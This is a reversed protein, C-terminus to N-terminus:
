LLYLHNIHYLISLVKSIKTYLLSKKKTIKHKFLLLLNNIHYLFYCHKSTTNKLFFFRADYDPYNVWDAVLCTRGIDKSTLYLNKLHTKNKFLLLFNNIYFLSSLIQISFYFFFFFTKYHTNKNSYYNIYYLFNFHKLTSNKLFFQFPPPL